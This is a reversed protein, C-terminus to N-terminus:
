RTLWELALDVEDKGKYLLKISQRETEFREIIAREDHLGFHLFSPLSFHQPDYHDIYGEGVMKEPLSQIFAGIKGQQSEYKVSMEFFWSQNKGFGLLIGLLSHKKLVTNWFSSYKDEVEFVVELPDFDSGLLRRFDAYHDLLTKVTMEINVFLVLEVSKEYPSTFIGFLYQRIPFRDKVQGWKKYNTAFDYRQLFVQSKEEDSLSQYGEQLKQKDQETLYVLNIMSVPKTGYLTYAGPNNFLLDRFFEKLWVKEEQTIDYKQLTTETRESHSCSSFALAIVVFVLVVVNLQTLHKDLVMSDKFNKM